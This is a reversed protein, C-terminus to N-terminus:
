TVVRTLSMSQTASFPTAFFKKLDKESLDAAILDRYKLKKVGKGNNNKVVGLAQGGQGPAHSIMYRKDDAASSTGALGFPGLLLISAALAITSLKFHCM